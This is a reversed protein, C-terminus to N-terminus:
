QNIRDYLLDPEGDNKSSVLRLDAALQEREVRSLPRRAKQGPTSSAISARISTGRPLNRKPTAAVEPTPPRSEEIQRLKDEVGKDVMAKLDQASYVTGSTSVIKPAPQVSFRAIALGAFLCFLVTAGAVAGKLWLPSLSFFERLAALASPKESRVSAFARATLHSPAAAGLSENRWAIVSERVASFSARDTKCTACDHLHHQFARSDAANLEGYLFAILENERGCNPANMEKM